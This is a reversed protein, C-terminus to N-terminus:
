VADARKKSRWIVVYSMLISIEYLLVLPVLMIIMSVPDAPTLLASIVSMIILAVKRGRKLTQPSLIGLYVLILVAMPFQFAVAFATLVLGIIKITENLRLQDVAVFETPVLILLYPMVLPLVGLYAVLVGALALFSCGFILIKAANRENPHLGPFIFACVQWLIFPFALLIGCYAAIKVKVIIFEVPNFVTFIPRRDPTTANSSPVPIQDEVGAAHEGTGAESSIVVSEVDQDYNVLPMLPYALVQIVYSSFLYCIFVSVVLASSARILRTRLEGLHETFSMRVDDVSM